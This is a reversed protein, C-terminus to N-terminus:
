TVLPIPRVFFFVFEVIQSNYFYFLRRSMRGTWLVSKNSKALTKKWYVITCWCLCVCICVLWSSKKDAFLSFLFSFLHEPANANRMVVFVHVCYDLLIAVPPVLEIVSFRFEENQGRKLVASRQWEDCATRSIFLREATLTALPTCLHDFRLSTRSHKQKAVAINEHWFYM